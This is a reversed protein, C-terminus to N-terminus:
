IRINRDVARQCSTPRVVFLRRHRRSLLKGFASFEVVPNSSRGTKHFASPPIGRRRVIVACFLVLRIAQHVSVHSMKHIM